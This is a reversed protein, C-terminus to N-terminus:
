WTRAWCPATAQVRERGVHEPYFQCGADDNGADGEKAAVIHAPNIVPSFHGAGLKGGLDANGLVFAAPGIGIVLHDARQMLRLGPQHGCHILKGGLRPVTGGAIM